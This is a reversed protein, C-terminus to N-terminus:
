SQNWSYQYCYHLAMASITYLYVDYAYMFVTWGVAMGVFIKQFVM